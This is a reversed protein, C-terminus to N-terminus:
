QRLPSTSLVLPCLVDQLNFFFVLFRTGLPPPPVAMHEPTNHWTESAEPKRTLTMWHLGIPTSNDAVGTERRLARHDLFFPQQGSDLKQGCWLIIGDHFCEEPPPTVVQEM